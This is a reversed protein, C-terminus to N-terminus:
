ADIGLTAARDIIKKLEDFNGWSLDQHERVLDFNYERRIKEIQDPDSIKKRIDKRAHNEDHYVFADCGVSKLFERSKPKGNVSLFPIGVSIASMGSHLKSTVMLDLSCMENFLALPEEYPHLVINESPTLDPLEDDRNLTTSFFHFCLNKNKKAAKGLTKFYRRFRRNLNVGVNIKGNPHATKGLGFFRPAALFIDPYHLIKKGLAQFFALDSKLRVTAFDYLHGTFFRRQWQSLTIDTGQGDGGISIPIVARRHKEALRMLDAFDQELEPLDVQSLHGGGGIVCLDAQDLLADLDRTTELVHAEAIHEDLGYIVPRVGLTQLYRGFLVALLDDGYNGYKYYGWLAVTLAAEKSSKTTASGTHIPESTSENM